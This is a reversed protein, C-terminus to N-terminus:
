FNRYHLWYYWTSRIVIADYESWDREESWVAPGAEIGIKDLEAVALRDNDSLDAVEACTAFAIKFKRKM